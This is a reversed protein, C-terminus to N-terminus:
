CHPDPQARHTMAAQVFSHFLPHPHNPKSLFEPHFQCAVFHPHGPIEIMEAFGGKDSIGSILM